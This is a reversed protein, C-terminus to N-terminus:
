NLRESKFQQLWDLADQKDYFLKTPIKPKNIKYWLNAVTSHFVTKLLIAIASLGESAEESAMYNRAEQNMRIARSLDVYVPYTGGNCIEKREKVLRQAVKLDVLALDPHYTGQIIGDIMEIKHIENDIIVTPHNM